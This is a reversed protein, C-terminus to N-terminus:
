KLTVPSVCKFTANTFLLSRTQKRPSPVHLCRFHQLPVTPGAQQPLCGILIRCSYALSNSHERPLTQYQYRLRATHTTSGQLPTTLLHTRRTYLSEGRGGGNGEALFASTNQMGAPSDSSDYTHNNYHISSHIQSKYGIVAHLFPTKQHIKCNLIGHLLPGPRRSRRLHSSSGCTSRMERLYNSHLSIRLCSYSQTHTHTFNLTTNVVLKNIELTNVFDHTIQGGKVAYRVCNLGDQIMVWVLSYTLTVPLLCSTYIYSHFFSSLPLHKANHQFEYPIEPNERSGAERRTPLLSQFVSLAALRILLKLNTRFNLYGFRKETHKIRILNQYRLM